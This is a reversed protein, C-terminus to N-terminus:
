LYIKSCSNYHEFSVYLTYTYRIRAVEKLSYHDPSTPQSFQITVTGIPSQSECGM